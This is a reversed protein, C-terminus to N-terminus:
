LLRGPISDVYLHMWARRPARHADNARAEGLMINGPSIRGNMMITAAVAPDNPMPLCPLSGHLRGSSMSRKRSSVLAAAPLLVLATIMPRLVQCDIGSRKRGRRLRRFTMRLRLGAMRSCSM